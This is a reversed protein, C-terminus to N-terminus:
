PELRVVLDTRSFERGQLFVPRMHCHPSESGGNPSHIATALAPFLPVNKHDHIKIELHRQYDNM